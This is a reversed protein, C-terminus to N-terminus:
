RPCSALIVAMALWIIARLTFYAVVPTGVACVLCGIWRPTRPGSEDMRRIRDTNTLSLRLPSLRTNVDNATDMVVMEGCHPCRSAQGLALLHDRPSVAFCCPCVNLEATM